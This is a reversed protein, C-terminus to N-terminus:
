LAASADARGVIGVDLGELATVTTWVASTGGRGTGL